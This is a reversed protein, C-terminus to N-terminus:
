PRLQEWRLFAAGLDRVSALLGLRTQRLPVDDVMVFVEDFFENVPGVLPEAARVFDALGMTTPNLQARVQGVVEHLRVEAPETLVAPEYEGTADDPAIRRARQLAAALQRFTEDGLLGDLDALFANVRAPRDAHLLVARIRDVPVGDEILQQELRRSVFEFVEELVADPVPV